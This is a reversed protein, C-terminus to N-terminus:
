TNTNLWDPDDRARWPKIGKPSDKRSQKAREFVRTTEEDTAAQKYERIASVATKTAQGLAEYTDEPSARVSLSEMTKPIISRLNRMQHHLEGLRELAQEIEAEGWQQGASPKQDPAAM